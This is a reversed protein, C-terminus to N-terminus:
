LYSKIVYMKEMIEKENKFFDELIGNITNVSFGFVGCAFLVLVICVIIEIPTQPVIDGFGVTAM